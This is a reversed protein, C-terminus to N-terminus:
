RWSEPADPDPAEPPAELPSADPVQEFYEIESTRAFYQRNDPGRLVLMQNLGYSDDLDPLCRDTLVVNELMKGSTFRVNLVAGQLESLDLERSSNSANPNLKRDLPGWFTFFARLLVVAAVVAWLIALPSNVDM